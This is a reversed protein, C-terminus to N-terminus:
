RCSSVSSKIFSLKMVTNV